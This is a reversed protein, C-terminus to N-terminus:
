QQFIYAAGQGSNSGIKGGPAGALITRGCVGVSAGFQDYPMGDSSSLETNYKHTTKWGGKPRIYVYASGQFQNFGVTSYFAGGVITNGNVAVSWGLDISDRATLEATETM